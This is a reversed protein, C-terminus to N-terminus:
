ETSERTSLRRQMRDSYDARWGQVHTRVCVEATMIGKIVLPGEWHQRLFRVDEWTRFVGNVAEKGWAMALEVLQKAKADGDQILKDYEKPDYPFRPFDKETHPELGLTKMFEPDSLAVQIGVSHIFPLFSSDIDHPRWGIAMTDVTVVLAGYGLAKARSLMSLTIANNLPWYLQFWRTGNANAQAVSELSQSAAGSLIMPIGLANAARATALEGDAHVLTQCGIPAIILPSPHKVGFITTQGPTTLM